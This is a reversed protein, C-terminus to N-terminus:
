ASQKSLAFRPHSQPRPRVPPPSPQPLGYRAARESILKRYAVAQMEFCKRLEPNTEEAALREFTLAHELYETLLKM